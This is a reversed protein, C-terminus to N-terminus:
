RPKGIAPGPSCTQLEMILYMMIKEQLLLAYSGGGGGGESHTHYVTYLVKGCYYGWSVTAPLRAGVGPVDGANYMWVKPPQRLEGLEDDEGIVGEGLQYLYNWAGKLRIPSGRGVQTLELWHRFDEDGPEGDFDYQSWNNCQGFGAPPTPGGGCAGGGGGLSDGVWWSLFEPFVQEAFDYNFDDVYLKGGDRVYQKLNRAADAGGPWERGCPAVILDYRGLEAPNGLVQGLRAGDLVDIETGYPFGLAGFMTSMDEYAASVIAIRPISDGAAADTRSPLTVEPPTPQGATAEIRHVGGPTAPTHIKRVRRFDGKQITLWYDRDPLLQLEFSGDVANATTAWPGFPLEVCKCGTQRQPPEPPVQWAVVLAGPIPFRNVELTAALDAGPSWIVGQVKVLSATPDSAPGDAAPLPVAGQGGDTSPAHRGGGPDAAPAGTRDSCSAAGLAAALAIFTTIRM